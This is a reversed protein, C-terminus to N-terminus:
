RITKQWHCGIQCRHESTREAFTLHSIGALVLATGLLVRGGTEINEATM